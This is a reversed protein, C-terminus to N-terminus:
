FGMKSNSNEYGARLVGKCARDIGRGKGKGARYIGKGIVLDGLLSAGLAGLM